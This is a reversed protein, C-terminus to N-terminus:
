MKISKNKNKLFYKIGILNRGTTYFEWQKSGHFFFLSQIENKIPSLVNAISWRIEGWNKKTQPFSILTREDIELIPINNLSNTTFFFYIFFFNCFM